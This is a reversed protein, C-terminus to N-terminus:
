KSLLRSARFPPSIWCLLWLRSRRLTPLDHREPAERGLKRAIDAFLLDAM